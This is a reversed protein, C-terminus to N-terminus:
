KLKKNIINILLCLFDMTFDLFKHGQHLFKEKNSNPELINILKLNHNKLNTLVKKIFYKPMKLLKKHDEKVSLAFITRSMINTMNGQVIIIKILQSKLINKFWHILTTVLNYKSFLSNNDWLNINSDEKKNNSKM